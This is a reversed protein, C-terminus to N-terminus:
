VGSIKIFSGPHNVQLGIEIDGLMRGVLRAHAAEEPTLNRTLPLVAYGLSGGGARRAWRNVRRALPTGYKELSVRRKALSVTM